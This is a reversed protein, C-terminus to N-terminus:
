SGCSHGARVDGRRGVREQALARADVTLPRIGGDRVAILDTMPRARERRTRLILRAAGRKTRGGSSAVVRPRPTAHSFATFAVVRAHDARPAYDAARTRSRGEGRRFRIARAPPMRRASPGRAWRCIRGRVRRAWCDGVGCDRSPVPRHRISRGCAALAVRRWNTSSM